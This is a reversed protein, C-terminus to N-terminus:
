KPPRGDKWYLGDIPGMLGWIGTATGRLDKNQVTHYAPQHIYIYPVEDTVIKQFENYLAKRKDVDLEVSAKDLLEDVKPNKYGGINSWPIHKINNSLFLRHVGIIPDPYCFVIDMSMEFQWSAMTKIWPGFGSPRRLNVDIGVKKLQPKLYEAIVQNDDYVGPLWDLTVSFRVGKDNKPYGAEDLLKNAKDLDLNYLTVDPSYFPNTFPLIPGTARQAMGM